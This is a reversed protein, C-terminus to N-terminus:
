EAAKQQQAEKQKKINELIRDKNKSIMGSLMKCQAAQKSDPKLKEADALIVLAGDIDGTAAISANALQVMLEQKTEPLLGDKKLYDKLFTVAAEPTNLSTAKSSITKFLEAKQEELTNKYTDAAKMGTKDEPDLTIIEDKVGKYFANVYEEPVNKLADFFSQAKETNNTADKAKAFAADRLKQKELAASMDDMVSKLDRGGVFSGFPRGESDAFIVTPFGEVKYLQAASENAKKEAEPLEKARPFDLEVLVFDKEAATLFEPKSMVEKKLMKCPPCWDSGTFEILLGKKQEVAVRKAEDLNTYWTADAFAPAVCGVVATLILVQKLM